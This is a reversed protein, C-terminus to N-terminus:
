THLNILQMKGRQFHCRSTFTLPTHCLNIRSSTLIVQQFALCFDPQLLTAGDLPGRQLLAILLCVWIGWDGGCCRWGRHHLRLRCVGGGVVAFYNVPVARGAVGGGGLPTQLGGREGQRGWGGGADWYVTYPRSTNSVATDQMCATTCAFSGHKCSCGPM